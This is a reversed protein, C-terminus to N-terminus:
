EVFTSIEENINTYGRSKVQDIEYRFLSWKEDKYELSTLNEVWDGSNMYIVEGKQGGVKKIVPTHIHGCIVYDFGNDIALDTATKEFDGIFKVAKKVSNKITKSFSMPERGIRKLVINVFRNLSILIDYGKGGLKAVWKAHQVSTDFVDGHFIWYKKSDIELMLKDRLHFKGASFDTFNRLLDDHNGPLYYVTTGSDIMQMLQYIIQLHDKPFYKKKFAWIDIFDGNLVIIRPKISKLYSLLEQAHLGYTGLHTDSIIVTHLERRGKLETRKMNFTIITCIYDYIM